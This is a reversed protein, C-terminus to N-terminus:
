QEPVYYWNGDLLVWSESIDQTGEFSRVGPLAGYVTFGLSITVKCTTEECESKNYKASTWKVQKRLISRQYQMLSISSRTGPTLYEYAGAFDGTLLADWRGMARDEIQNKKDVTAAACASLLLVSCVVAILKVNRSLHFYNM